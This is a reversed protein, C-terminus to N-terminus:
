CPPRCYAVHRASAISVAPELLENRGAQGDRFHSLTSSNADLWREDRPHLVGSWIARLHQDSNSHRLRLGVGTAVDEWELETIIVSPVTEEASALTQRGSFDLSDDSGDRGGNEETPATQTRGAQLQVLKGSRGIISLRPRLIVLSSPFAETRPNGGPLRKNPCRHGGALNRGDRSLAGPLPLSCNGRCM